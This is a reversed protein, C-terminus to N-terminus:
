RQAMPERMQRDRRYVKGLRRKKSIKIKKNM